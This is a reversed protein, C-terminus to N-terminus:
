IAEGNLLRPPASVTGAKGAAEDIFLRKLGPLRDVIGLGVDRVVRLASNDNSFLRNLMDTAITMEMTDWRRWRQYRELVAMSGIDLGLRHAEILTEALAAADRYGLNLGQGAIPHIVHAADGALALRPRVFQRALRVSLPFAKPSDIPEIRGLRHGFRRELEVAFVLSDGAVLRDAMETKETWVLSSLNRGGSAKLPLTAFPGGPLFHEEAKGGHPREHAVTVVIGSQGYDFGFTGIGALERLRSKVGDAAVLLRASIAGGGATAAVVRSPQVTFDVVTEPAVVEVGARRASKALAEVVVGDPVVHAMAGEDTAFTLFVPRVVDHTRSDTVIMATVLEADDAIDNWVGLRDLMMRGGAVVTSARGERPRAGPPAADVVAVSLASGGSRLALSLALGVQGGGAILVDFTEPGTASRTIVRPLM